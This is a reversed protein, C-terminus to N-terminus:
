LTFEKPGDQVKAMIEELRISGVKAEIIDEVKKFKIIEDEIFM